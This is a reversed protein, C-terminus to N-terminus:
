LAMMGTLAAVRKEVAERTVAELGETGFGEVAFSGMVSGHVLARKLHEPGAGRGALYGVVGGAFADGAGTPDVVQETPFSPVAFLAGGAMLTSGHEARKVILNRLGKSGLERMARALNTKGSLMLAEEHNICFAHVRPLLEMLGKRENDIWLEITDLVVFSPDRLQGLLHAQTEPHATGLHVVKSGRFQEPVTPRFEGFVNLRVDVTEASNMAGEYRGHWRFTEGEKIELGGIDIGYRRLKEVHEQPFDKGVVGVLRVPAFHRASLSFHTASGGLVDERKENPTEITDLAVSGVVLVDSM